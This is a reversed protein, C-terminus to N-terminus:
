LEVRKTVKVVRNGNDPTCLWLAEQKDRFLVAHRAKKAYCCGDWYGAGAKVRYGVVVKMYIRFGKAKLEDVTMDDPIDVELLM